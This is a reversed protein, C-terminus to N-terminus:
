DISLARFKMPIKEGRDLNETEEYKESFKPNETKQRSPKSDLNVTGASLDISLTKSDVNSEFKEVTIKAM